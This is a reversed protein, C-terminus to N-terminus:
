NKFNVVIEEEEKLLEEQESTIRDEDYTEERDFDNWVVREPTDTVVMMNRLKPGRHRVLANHIQRIREVINDM